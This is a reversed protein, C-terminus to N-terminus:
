GVENGNFSGYVDRVSYEINAVRGGRNIADVLANEYNARKTEQGARDRYEYGMAVVGAKLAQKLNISLDPLSDVSDYLKHPNRYYYFSLVLDEAPLPYTILSNSAIPSFYEPQGISFQGQVLLRLQEIDRHSLTRSPPGEFFPAGKLTRISDYDPPKISSEAEGNIVFTTDFNDNIQGVLYYDGQNKQLYLRRAIVTQEDSVPIDTVDITLNDTATTLKASPIGAISEVGGDQVYTILVRYNANTGLQGGLSLGVTPAKPPALELSQIEQGYSLHKKGKVLHMGWDHRTSIDFIVDNMWGLCRARFVPSTDGLLATLEDLLDRGNWGM